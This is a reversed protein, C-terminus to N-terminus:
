AFYYNLSGYTAEDFTHNAYNSCLWEVARIDYMAKSGDHVNKFKHERSYQRLYQGILQNAENLCRCERLTFTESILGSNAITTYKVREEDTLSDFRVRARASNRMGRKMASIREQRQEETYGAWEKRMSETTKRRHAERQEETYKAWRKRATESRRAHKEEETLEKWRVKKERVPQENTKAKPETVKQEKAKQEKAKPAEGISALLTNAFNALAKSVAKNAAREAHKKVAAAIKKDVDKMIMGALIQNTNLQAQLLSVVDPTMSENDLSGIIANM